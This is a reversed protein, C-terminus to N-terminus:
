IKNNALQFVKHFKADSATPEAPSFFIHKLFSLM